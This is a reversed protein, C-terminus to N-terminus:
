TCQAEYVYLCVQQSQCRTCLHRGPCVLGKRDWSWLCVHHANSKYLRLRSGAFWDARNAATVMSGPQCKGPCLLIKPILSVPSLSLPYFPYQLGWIDPASQTRQRCFHFFKSQTHSPGRELEASQMKVSLTLISGGFSKQCRPSLTQVMFTKFSLSNVRTLGDKLDHERWQLQWIARAPHWFGTLQTPCTWRFLSHNLYGATM